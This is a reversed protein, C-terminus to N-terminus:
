GLHPFAKELDCQPSSGPPRPASCYHCQGQELKAAHSAILPNSFATDLPLELSSVFQFLTLLGLLCPCFFLFTPLCNFYLVFPLQFFVKQMLHQPIPFHSIGSGLHLELTVSKLIWLMVGSPTLLADPASCVNGIRVVMKFHVCNVEFHM